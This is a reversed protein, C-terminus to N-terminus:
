SGQEATLSAGPWGSVDHGPHPHELGALEACGRGHPDGVVAARDAHRKGVALGAREVVPARMALDRQRAPQDAVAHDGAGAVEAAEVQTGAPAKAASPLLDGAVGARNFVAPDLDVDAGRGRAPRQALYEDRVRAPM